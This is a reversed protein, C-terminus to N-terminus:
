VIENSWREKQPKSVESEKEELPLLDTNKLESSPFLVEALEERQLCGSHNADLSKFLRSLKEKSHPVHLAKLFLSLEQKSVRGSGDSDIQGFLDTVVAQRDKSDCGIDKVQQLIKQRLDKLLAANMEEDEAMKGIVDMNLEEIALLKSSTKVIVSLVIFTYGIPLLMLINWMVPQDTEYAITVFNTAWLAMYFCNLMVVFEVGRFYLHRNGFLFIDRLDTHISKTRIKLKAIKEEDNTDNNVGIVAQNSSSKRFYTQFYQCIKNYKWKDEAIQVSKLEDINDKLESVTYVQDKPKESIITLDSLYKSYNHIDKSGTKQIIRIEYLRSVFMVITAITSVLGGGFLFVSIDYEFCHGTDGHADPSSCPSFQGRFAEVRIYNLITVFIVVLWTFIGVELLEVCYIEFCGKLYTAFDIEYSQYYTECFFKKLMKYEVLERINSLMYNRYYAIKQVSNMSEIRKLVDREDCQDFNTYESSISFSLIILLIAHFVYFLSMYFFLIHITDLSELWLMDTSHHDTVSTEYMVILFSVLGMITLEKLVKQIIHYFALYEQRLSEILSTLYEFSIIFATIIVVSVTGRYVVIHQVAGFQFVM